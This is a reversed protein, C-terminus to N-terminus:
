RRASRAHRLRRRPELYAGDGWAPFWPVDRLAPWREAWEGALGARPADDIPPLTDEVGLEAALERDWACARRTSCGPAPPWRSAPPPTASCAASSTSAPRSGPASATSPTRSRHRAAVGAEGALLELAPPLRHPRPDAAEDLRERLQPPTPPRAPTPGPTSRRSRAAASTSASCATGCRPPPWRPSRAATPPPATSCARSAGSCRTPTSSAPAAGARDAGDRRAADRRADWLSARLSSSGIDLVVIVPGQVRQPRDLRAGAPGRQQAADLEGTLLLVGM